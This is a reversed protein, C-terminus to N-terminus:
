IRLPVQRRLKFGTSRRPDRDQVLDVKCGSLGSRAVTEPDRGLCPFADFLEDIPKGFLRSEGSACTSAGGNQGASAVPDLKLGRM